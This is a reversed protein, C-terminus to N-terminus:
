HPPKVGEQAQIRRIAKHLKDYAIAADADHLFFSIIRYTSFCGLITIGHAALQETLFNLLGPTELAGPDYFVTLVTVDDVRALVDEPGVFALVHDMFKHNGAVTIEDSRMLLYQKEGVAWNVTKELELLENYLRPVPKLHLVFFGARLILKCGAAYALMQKQERWSVNKYGRRIAMVIADISVPEGAKREIDGHILRALASLNVLDYKFPLGLFQMEGLIEEVADSVSTGM